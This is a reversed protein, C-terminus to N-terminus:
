FLKRIDNFTVFLMLAVFFAFFVFTLRQELKPNVPKGKIKEILLFLLKGGDLAPIPLINFIALYISIMAMFQLFYVLGLNMAKAIIGGVGVIGVLEAGSPEKHIIRGLVEVWGSIFTYSINYISVAGNKLAQFFPYKVTAIRVLAVGTPGQGEPPSIRPILSIEKIEKGREITLFLDEGKHRNIFDSVEKVKDPKLYEGEGKLELITDGMQIGATKAPSDNAVSLIQVRPNELNKDTDEVTQPAGILSVAVLLFYSVVFFSFVGGFVILARQWIKKESFSTGEKIEKDEGYIKVFAGLPLLNLSYITGKRKFSLLRPPFFLGFEEVKVKFLKALLFHGLEHIIILVILSLYVIFFVM